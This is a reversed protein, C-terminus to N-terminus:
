TPYNILGCRCLINLNNIAMVEKLPILKSKLSCLLISFRGWQLLHKVQPYSVALHNVGVTEALQINLRDEETIDFM